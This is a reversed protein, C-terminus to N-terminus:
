QKDSLAFRLTEPVDVNQSRQTISIRGGEPRRSSLQPLLIYFTGAQCSSVSGGLLSQGRGPM